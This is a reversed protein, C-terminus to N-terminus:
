LELAESSEMAQMRLDFINLTGEQLVDSWEYSRNDSIWRESFSLRNIARRRQTNSVREDSQIARKLNKFTLREQYFLKQIIDRIIDM